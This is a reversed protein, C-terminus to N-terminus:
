KGGAPPLMFLLMWVLKFLCKFFSLSGNDLYGKPVQSDHTTERMEGSMYLRSNSRSSVPLPQRSYQEIEKHKVKDVM